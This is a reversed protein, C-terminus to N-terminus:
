TRTRRELASLVHQLEATVEHLRRYAPYLEGYVGAAETRFM